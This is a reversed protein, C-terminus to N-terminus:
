ESIMWRAELGPLSSQYAYHDHIEFSFDKIQDNCLQELLFDDYCVQNGICDYVYVLAKPKFDNNVETPRYFYFYLINGQITKKYIDVLIYNNLNSWPRDQYIHNISSQNDILEQMWIDLQDIPATDTNYFNSCSNILTTTSDGNNQIQEEQSTCGSNSSLYALLAFAMLTHLFRNM